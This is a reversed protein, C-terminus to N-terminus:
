AECSLLFGFSFVSAGPDLGLLDLGWLDLPAAAVADGKGLASAPPKTKSFGTVLITDARFSGKAKNALDNL